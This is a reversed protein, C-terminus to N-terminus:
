YFSEVTGKDDELEKRLREARDIDAKPIANGKEIGGSLLIFRRGSKLVGFPRLQKNDGKVRFEFVETGKYKEIKRGPIKAVREIAEVEARFRIRDKPTLGALWKDMPCNGNDTVYKQVTWTPMGADHCDSVFSDVVVM